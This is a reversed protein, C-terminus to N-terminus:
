LYNFLSLGSITKFSMQAAQLTTQQNSFDSIAKITDLGQLQDLTSAYQIDLDLGANDLYDVEKMASGFSAQVTLINEHAMKLNDLATNLNNSLLAKGSSGDAPARLATILDTVTTFISQKQSPEVTFQDGDAPEGKIDFTMGGFTIAEGAKYAQNTLVDTAPVTSTNQVSYTRVPPTDTTVAFTLAYKSGDLQTRDSVSGSGIIGAGTNTASAQTQFTGNGTRNAEFVSAGPVSIPLTRSESVQLLRVGQDGQYQAGGPARAFPQTTTRNGSFLFNGVGDTMNAVGFLDELRGELEIALAERDSRTMAGNGANVALTQIDQLLDGASQLSSEVHALSSTANSRNTAFQANIQQAQSVEIVRASAVPDDAATLLRRDTSLQMQTRSLSSQLTNLQNTAVRYLNQTSVRM